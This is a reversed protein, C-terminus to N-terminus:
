YEFTELIDSFSVFGNTIINYGFKTREEESRQREKWEIIEKDIKNLLNLVNYFSVKESILKTSLLLDKIKEQLKVDTKIRKLLPEIFASHFFNSGDNNITERLFQLINEHNRFLFKLQYGFQPGIRPSNQRTVSEFIEKLIPTQPWGICLAVAKAQEHTYDVISNLENFVKEDMYFNEGLIKAAGYAERAGNIVNRLAINKLLSSQPNTRALFNVFDSDRITEQNEEIYKMLYPFAASNRNSYKAWFSWYSEEAQENRNGYYDQFVSHVYDFNDIYTKLVWHGFQHRIGSLLVIPDAHSNANPKVASFYEPLRRIIILGCIAVIKSLEYLFGQYEIKSKCIELIKDGDNKIHNFYLVACNSAISDDSEKDFDKLRDLIFQDAIANDGFKDILSIRLQKPLPVSNELIEDVVAEEEPYCSIIIDKYDAYDALKIMVLDRVLDESAFHQSLKLIVSQYNHWPEGKPIHDIEEMIFRRLLNLRFYEKDLTVLGDLARERFTADRDFLIDELIKIATLKEGEENFVEPILHAAYSKLDSSSQFYKKLAVKVEIDTPWGTVLTWVVWHPFISENLKSIIKQKIEETGLMVSVQAEDRVFTKQKDFWISLENKVLDSEKFNRSIYEFAERDGVLFSITDDKLKKILLDVVEKRNNYCDLLIRWAIEVNILGERGRDTSTMCLEFLQDSFGWGAVLIRVAKDRHSSGIDKFVWAFDNLLIDRRQMSIALRLAFFAIIVHKSGLYKELYKEKIVSDVNELILCNLSYGIVEADVSRELLDVIDDYQWGKKILNKIAESADNKQYANGNILLRMLFQFHSRRIKSIELFAIQDVRSDSYHFNNPFYRFLYTVVEQKIKINYLAELIINWLINKIRINSEVEFKSTIRKLFERALDIPSNSLTLAVDFKLFSSSYSDNELNDKSGILEVCEKFFKPRSNPILGFFFKIVQHWNSNGGFSSLINIHEDESDILYKAVLFEEFLRHSFAIQSVSKEVIIGYENAGISIIEDSTKRSRLREYGMLECLYEEIVKKAESSEIVGDPVNRHVYFALYRFVEILDFEFKEQAIINASSVRKKPHTNILHDTIAELAKNKNNPLISDRLKQTILISLLLPNEALHKLEVSKVIDDLFRNTENNAIDRDNRGLSEFRKEFWYHIYKQQQARTFPLLNIESINTFHDKLVRYGYPRSSYIVRTNKLDSHIRIKLLAQQASGLDTQEDIGDVVLLLREDSLAEEVLDYLHIKNHSSFWTKLIDNISADPSTSLAKTIYAFPLWIPLHSLWQFGANVFTQRNSLVDLILNRLLTSKGSGPDGLIICSKSLSILEDIPIRESISKEENRTEKNIWKKRIAQVFEEPLLQDYFNEINTPEFDETSKQSFIKLTENATIESTSIFGDPMLFRDRIPYAQPKLDHIPIGVDYNNFAITYFEFLEKRFRIVQGCDLMRRTQIMSLKEEGNFSKVWERGFFDYVIEPYDNLLRCIQEKDYKIFVVGKTALKTKLQEFKRQLKTDNLSSTTCFFFQETKTVWEGGIFKDVANQLDAPKVVNYKKCQYTYYKSNSRRAYIDIGDQSQGPVGSIECEHISHEISVIRLVLSEFTQWSLKEIPLYDTTSIIPPEVTSM